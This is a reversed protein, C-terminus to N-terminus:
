KKSIKKKIKFLKKIIIKLKRLTQLTHYYLSGYYYYDYEEEDFMYDENNIM